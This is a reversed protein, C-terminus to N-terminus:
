DPLGIVRFFASPGDTKISATVNTAPEGVNQWPQDFAAAQQLQYHSFSGYAQIVIETQSNRFLRAIVGNIPRLSFSKLGVLYRPICQFCGGTIVTFVESEGYGGINRAEAEEYSAGLRADWARVQVFAQDGPIVGPINRLGNQPNYFYGPRNTRFTEAPAIGSIAEPAPGGYLMAPYNTGNLPQGKDDFVPADVGFSLVYNSFIINADNGQASAFGNGLLLALLLVVIRLSKTTSIPTMAVNNIDLDGRFESSDSV